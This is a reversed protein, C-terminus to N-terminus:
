EVDFPTFEKVRMLMEYGFAQYDVFVRAPRIVASYADDDFPSQFVDQSPPGQETVTLVWRLVAVAARDSPDHDRVWDDFAGVFDVRWTGAV